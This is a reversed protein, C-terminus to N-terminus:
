RAIGAGALPLPRGQMYAPQGVGFYALVTPAIDVLEVKGGAVHHEGTRFWLAGEPHHRGSRVTHIRYFLEGLRRQSGDGRRLVRDVDAASHLTCGAFIATGSRKALMIPRGDVTLEALRAEAMGAASEDTFEVSFQEAMVPHVKAGHRPIGAFDLLEPFSRPRYTCKVSDPWPEQSLATCLVLLSDPFDRLFRGLLKDMSQYGHLVARDLSAHEDASVPTEFTEPEMHRWYYHQFHATSNSFFTAFDIRRRSVLRRFLDYQLHDLVSARRWQIGPDRVEALLQATVLRTTAASLGNRLLFFGLRGLEARGVPMETRSSEQVQSAIVRRYPELMPPQASGGPNWPDPLWFGNVDTYDVNMSSCIGVRLGADSLVCGVLPVGLKAGDGLHVIGHESHDMGSHVTPWQIWPELHPPSAKADTLFVASSQYFRRFNPLWGHTMFRDLLSPALENFEVLILRPAM